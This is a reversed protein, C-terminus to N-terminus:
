DEYVDEPAAHLVTWADVQNSEQPVDELLDPPSGIYRWLLLEVLLSLSGGTRVKDAKVKKMVRSLIDENVHVGTNRRKGKFMPRSQTERSPASKQKRWWALLDKLDEQALADMWEPVAKTPENKKRTAM